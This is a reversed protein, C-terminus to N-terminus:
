RLLTMTRTATFTPASLRLLYLGSPLDAADFRLTHPEGAALRGDHLVAVRQGLATYVEARVPQEIALTLTLHTQPNFPNPYVESLQYTGVVEVAVEVAESYAFAGDFDVQKLRFTHTGAPLGAIRHQYQQPEATTGAGAVFAVAEFAGTALRHEVEFGANNTESATAWTLLADDGDAAVDFHALEVPLPPTPLGLQDLLFPVNDPRAAVHIENDVPYYVAEFTATSRKSGAEATVIGAPDAEINYYLDDIPLDLASTTPIWSHTPFSTYIQGYSPDIAAIEQQSARTGGPASDVPDTGGVYVNLRHYDLIGFLSSKLGEFIQIDSGGNPVAWANGRLSLTVLGLNKERYSYELIQDGPQMYEFGARENGRQPQGHGSGDALAVRRVATPYGLADLEAKLAERLPDLRKDLVVAKYQYILQQRAAPSNLADLALQAFESDDSFFYIFLQDGLPINAGRHPTDYSVYTRVRHGLGQQEMYALAYRAILGGMSPGVVDIQAGPPMLAGLRGLLHELAFANRQVYGAADHLKHLVIDFGRARLEDAVGEEAVLQYMDQWTRRRVPDNAYVDFGEVFVIPSTIQTHGDGLFVYADYSATGGEYARAAQQDRWVVDPEPVEAAALRLTTTATRTRGDVEAALRVTKPGGQAYQVTVADGPRVTREGSGDGFDVRFTAAPQRQNHVYLEPPIIFTVTRRHLTQQFSTVAFVARTEFLSARAGSVDRLRGNQVRVLGKDLATPKLVGYDLSVVALPVQERQRYALAAQDLRDLDPLYRQAQATVASRALEFYAQRWDNLTAPEAEPRGDFRTLDLVSAVRSHLLGAPVQAADLQSFARTLVADSGDHEIRVTPLSQAATTLPVLLTLLLLALRRSAAYRAPMADRPNSYPVRRIGVEVCM